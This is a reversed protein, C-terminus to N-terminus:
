RSWTRSAPESVVSAGANSISSPNTEIAVDGCTTETIAAKRIEFREGNLARNRSLMEFNAGVPEVAIAHHAGFMASSVMVSWFGYNAGLDLFTYDVHKTLQLAAAIEPEYHFNKYLLRNWYPDALQFAFRKDDSLKGVYEQDRNVLKGIQKAMRYFLRFNIPQTIFGSFQILTIVVRCKMDRSDCKLHSSRM